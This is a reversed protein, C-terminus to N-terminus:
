KQPQPNASPCTKSVPDCQYVYPEQWSLPIELLDRTGTLGQGIFLLLAICNLITHIIRWRNSKDRYIDQVIALSFIMLLAATIGIYYHSWYWENTRRFVGDQCGLIVVGVGTLTAFIGRWQAQQAQYLLLLSAITVVFLLIIFIVQFSSKTWLQNNLINKGIPYALGILTLGVVAGTLWEGLKRHETGVVPPIKSKGGGLVQLRRQRTQWAFNVVIGILPFVFIVAIAPHILGLFDAIQM